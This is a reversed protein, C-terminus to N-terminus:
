CLKSAHFLFFFNLIYWFFKLFIFSHNTAGSDTVCWVSHLKLGHQNNLGWYKINQSTRLSAFTTHTSYLISVSINEFRFSWLVVPMTTRPNNSFTFHWKSCLKPIQFGTASVKAIQKRERWFKRCVFLRARESPFNELSFLDPILFEIQAWCHSRKGSWVGKWLMMEKTEGGFSPPSVWKGIIECCHRINITIRAKQEKNKQIYPHKSFPSCFVYCLVISYKETIQIPFYWFILISIWIYIVSWRTPRGVVFSMALITWHDRNTMTMTKTNTLHHWTM